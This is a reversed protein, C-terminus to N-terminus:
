KKYVYSGLKNKKMNYKKALSSQEKESIRMDRNLKNIDPNEFYYMGTTPLMIASIAASRLFAETMAKGRAVKEAKMKDTNLESIKKIELNKMAKNFALENKRRVAKRNLKNIKKTNGKATAKNLKENIKDVKKEKRKISRDYVKSARNTQRNKYSNLKAKKEASSKQKSSLPYPPGNRDGWSMGKIGHHMLYDDEPNIVFTM